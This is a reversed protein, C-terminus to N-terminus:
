LLDQEFPFICIVSMHKTRVVSVLTQGFINSFNMDFFSLALGSLTELDVFTLWLKVFCRRDPNQNVLKQELDQCRASACIILNTIAIFLLKTVGRSRPSIILIQSCASRVEESFNSHIGSQISLYLESLATDISFSGCGPQPRSTPSYCLRKSPGSLWLQFHLVYLLIFVNLAQIWNVCFSFELVTISCHHYM